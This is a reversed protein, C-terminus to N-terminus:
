GLDFCRKFRRLASCWPAGDTYTITVAIKLRARSLGSAPLMQLNLLLRYEEDRKFWIVPEGRIVVM